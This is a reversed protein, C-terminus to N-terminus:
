KINEYCLELKNIMSDVDTYKLVTKHTNFVLKRYLNPSNYVRQIAEKISIIDEPNCYVGNINDLIIETLGGRNSAVVPTQCACAEIAVLGFSEHVISPVIMLDINNIFSTPNVYGLMSIRKDGGIESNIIDEFEKSVAKGGISLDFNGSLYKFAKILNIIGKGESLTALFGLHFTRNGDWINKKNQLKIPEANHIVESKKFPFNTKTFREKQAQSVFIFQDVKKCNFKYPYRLLKCKICRKTCSKGDKLMVGNICIFSSDHTIQIIKIHNRHLFSWISPSWGTLNECFIVEPELEKIVKELDSDHFPNYLDLIHWLIRGIKGPKKGLPWYFNRIPLRYIVIFKDDFSIREKEIDKQPGLTIVTVEYGKKAFGKAHIEFMKEAGGVTYPPFYSGLFIIKKNM